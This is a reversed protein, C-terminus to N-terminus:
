VLRYFTVTIMQLVENHWWVSSTWFRYTWKFWKTKCIKKVYMRVHICHDGNNKFHHNRSSNLLKLAILLADWNKHEYTHRYYTNKWSKFPTILWSQDSVVNQLIIFQWHENTKRIVQDTSKKLTTMRAKFFLNIPILFFSLLM